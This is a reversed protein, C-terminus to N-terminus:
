IGLFLVLCLQMVLYMDPVVIGVDVHVHVHVHVHLYEDTCTVHVIDHVSFTYM